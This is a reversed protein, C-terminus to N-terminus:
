TLQIYTHRWTGAICHISYCLSIMEMVVLCLPCIPLCADDLSFWWPINKNSEVVRKHSSYTLKSTTMVGHLVGSTYHLRHLSSCLSIMEMLTVKRQGDDDDDDKGLSEAAALSFSSFLFCQLLVVGGCAASHRWWRQWRPLRYNYYNGPKHHWLFQKAIAAAHLTLLPGLAIQGTSFSKNVGM